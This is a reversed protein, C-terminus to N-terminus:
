IKQYSQLVNNSLDSLTNGSGLCRDLDIVFAYLHLEQSYENAHLNRTLQILLLLNISM